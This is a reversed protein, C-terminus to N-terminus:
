LTVENTQKWYAEALLTARAKNYEARFPASLLFEAAWDWDFVQAHKKAALKIERLSNFTVSDGFIREFEEVQDECAELGELQQKTITATM